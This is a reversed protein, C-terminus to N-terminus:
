ERLSLSQVPMAIESGLLGHKEFQNLFHPSQSTAKPMSDTESIMQSPGNTKTILGLSCDLVYRDRFLYAVTLMRRLHRADSKNLM